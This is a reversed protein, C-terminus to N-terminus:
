ANGDRRKKRRWKEIAENGRQKKYKERDIETDKKMKEKGAKTEKPM